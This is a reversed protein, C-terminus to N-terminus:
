QQILAPQDSGYTEAFFKECPMYERPGFARSFCSFKNSGSVQEPVEVADTNTVLVEGSRLKAIAQITHKGEGLFDVMFVHNTRIAYDTDIPEAKSFDAEYVPSGDSVIVLAELDEPKFQDGYINLVYDFNREYGPGWSNQASSTYWSDPEFKVENIDSPFEGELQEYRNFPTFGSDTYIGSENGFYSMLELSYQFSPIIPKGLATLYANMTNAKIGRYNPMQPDMGSSLEENWIRDNSSGPREQIGTRDMRILIQSCAGIGVLLGAAAAGLVYDRLNSM